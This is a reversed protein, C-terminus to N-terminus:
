GLEIYQLKCIHFFYKNLAKNRSKCSIDLCFVNSCPNQFDM